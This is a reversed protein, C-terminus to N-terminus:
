FGMWRSLEDGVEPSAWGTLLPGEMVRYVIHPKTIPKAM